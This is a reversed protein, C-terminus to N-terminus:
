KAKVLQSVPVLYMQSGQWVKAVKKGNHVAYGKVTAKKGHLIVDM